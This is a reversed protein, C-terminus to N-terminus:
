PVGILAHGRSARLTVNQDITMTESYSGSRILVIDGADAAILGDGVTVYPSSSSGDAPLPDGRHDVFHTYGDTVHHVTGNSYETMRDLQGPTLAARQERYSMVNHYVQNVRHQDDASLQSYMCPNSGCETIVEQQFSWDAIQNEDWCDGCDTGCNDDLTDPVADDWGTVCDYEDWEDPQLIDDGHTHHL